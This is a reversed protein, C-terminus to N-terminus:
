PQLRDRRVVLDLRRRHQGLQPHPRPNGGPPHLRARRRHAVRRHDGRQAPRRCRPHDVVRGRSVGDDTSILAGARDATDGSNRGYFPMILPGASHRLIAGSTATWGGYGDVRDPSASTSGGDDSCITFLGTVKAGDHEFFNVILGGSSTEVISPDRHDRGPPPSALYTKASWTLGDDTSTQLAVKGDVSIHSVGERYVALLAGGANRVM